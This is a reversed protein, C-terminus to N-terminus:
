RSPQAAVVPKMDLAGGLDEGRRLSPGGGRSGRELRVRDRRSSLPELGRTGVRRQRALAPSSARGDEPRGARPRAGHGGPRAVRTILARQHVLERAITRALAEELLVYADGPRGALIYAAGLTSAIRPFWLAADPARAITLAPEVVDIARRGTAGGSCCTAPVPRRSSWATHISSRMPPPCRRTRAARRRTSSASRPWARPSVPGRTSRAPRAGASHAFSSGASWCTSTGGSCRRRTAPLRGPRLLVQGLGTNAPIEIELDSLRRAIDLAREGALIAESKHGMVRLCFVLQATM